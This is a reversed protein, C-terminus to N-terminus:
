PRPAIVARLITSDSRVELLTASRRPDGTGEFRYTALAGEYTGMRRLSDSLARGSKTGSRTAALALLHVADFTAVATARPTDKTGRAANWLDVFRRSAPRTTRRDWNAVIITGGLEPLRAMGVADWSDTGLVRGRFGLQVLDRLMLSDRAVLDPLLLVEPKANVIRRLHVRHTSSDEASFAESVVMTGGESEFTQRFLSVIEQGYVSAANYLAAARTAGLSDRTFRALVEGQVADLFALRSVLKRDRTVAPSSAMPAIMPVDSEEAVAGATAAISSFQPGIVVDVSDRNILSRMSAAAEDARLTTRRSILEITHPVGQIIVGGAANIEDVAFKAGVEAPIGTSEAFRGDFVGLLGIRLRAPPEPACSLLASGSLAGCFLLAGRSVSRLSRPM